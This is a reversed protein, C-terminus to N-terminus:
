IYRGGAALFSKEEETSERWLAANRHPFRGFREIISHHRRAYDLANELFSRYSQPAQQLLTEYLQVSLVQDSLTESHEFPLFVFVQEVPNLVQFISKEIMAGSIARAQQDYAFAQPTNRYIQRPFQDLILIIALLDHPDDPRYRLTGSRAADPLAGFRKEIDRDLQDSPAFWRAQHRALSEPALCADEFWFHRVEELPPHKM